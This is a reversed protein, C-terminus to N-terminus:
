EYITERMFLASKLGQTQIPSYGFYHVMQWGQAGLLNLETGDRYKFCQYEYMKDCPLSTKLPKPKARYRNLHFNYGLGGDCNEWPSKIPDLHLRQWQIEEGADEALTVQRIEENTMRKM